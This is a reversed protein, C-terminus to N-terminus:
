RVAILQFTTKDNLVESLTIQDGNSTTKYALYYSNDQVQLTYKVRTSTYGIANLKFKNYGGDSNTTHFSITEFDQSDSTCGECRSMCFGGACFGYVDCDKQQAMFKTAASASAQLYARQNSDVVVYRGDTSQIYYLQGDNLIGCGNSPPAFGDALAQLIAPVLGVIDVATDLALGLLGSLLGTIPLTQADTTQRPM